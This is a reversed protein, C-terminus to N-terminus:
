CQAGIYFKDIETGVKETDCTKEEHSKLTMYIWTCLTFSSIRLNYNYPIHGNDFFCVTGAHMHLSLFM